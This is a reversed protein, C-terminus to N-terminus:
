KDVYPYIELIGKIELEKRIKWEPNLKSLLDLQKSFIQRRVDEGDIRHHVEFNCAMTFSIDIFVKYLLDDIDLALDKKLQEGREVVVYYLQGYTDVEIHPHAGDITHGYTPFYVLPVDIVRGYYEVAEKIKLLEQTMDNCQLTLYLFERRIGKVFNEM